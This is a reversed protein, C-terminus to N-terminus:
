RVFSQKRPLSSCTLLCNVLVKHVHKQRYSVVVRGSDIVMSIIEHDIEVLTNSWASISSAVGQDVTLSAVLQGVPDFIQCLQM